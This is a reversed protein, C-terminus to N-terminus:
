EHAVRIETETRVISLIEWDSNHDSRFETLADDLSNAVIATSTERTFDKRRSSIRYLNM